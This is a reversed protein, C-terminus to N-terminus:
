VATAAPRNGSSIEPMELHIRDLGIEEIRRKILGERASVFEPLNEVQWLDRDPPILHYDLFSRDRSHIWEDFPMNSKEINERGLLIQLNGIKNLAEIIKLIRAEPVNLAM